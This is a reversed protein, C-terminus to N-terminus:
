ALHDPSCRPEFHTGDSEEAPETRSCCQCECGRRGPALCRCLGDNVAVRVQDVAGTRREFGVHRDDRLALPDHRNHRCRLGSRVFAGRDDVHMALKDQGAKDVGMNMKRRRRVPAKGLRQQAAVDIAADRRHAVHRAVRARQAFIRAGRLHVFHRRRVNIVRRQHRTRFKEPVRARGGGRLAMNWPLHRPHARDGVLGIHLDGNGFRVPCAGGGDLDIGVQGGRQDVPDNGFRMALAQEHPGM